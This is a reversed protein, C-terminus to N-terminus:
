RLSTGILVNGCSVAARRKEKRTTLGRIAIPVTSPIALVKVAKANFLSSAKTDYQSEPAVENISYHGLRSPIIKFSKSSAEMDEVGKLWPGLLDHYVGREPAFTICQDTRVSRRPPAPKEPESGPIKSGATNRVVTRTSPAKQEPAPLTDKIKDAIDNPGMTNDVIRVHVTANLM